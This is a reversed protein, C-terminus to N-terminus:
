GDTNNLVYKDISSTETSAIVHCFTASYETQRNAM